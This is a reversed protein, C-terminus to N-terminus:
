QVVKNIGSGGDLVDGESGGRLWDNGAGGYARDAQFAGNFFDDGAGGYFVDNGGDALMWVNFKAGLTRADLVDNGLRPWVEIFMKTAAFAEPIACDIGIGVEVAVSTCGEPLPATRGTGTDTLHLVGPTYTITMNNNQQGSWYRLGWQTWSVIASGGLQSSPTFQGQLVTTPQPVNLPATGAFHAEIEDLRRQERRERRERLEQIRARRAAAEIALEQKVVQFNDTWLVLSAQDEPMDVRAQAPSWSGVLGVMTLALVAAVSTISKRSRAM